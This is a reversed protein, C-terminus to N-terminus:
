EGGDRHLLMADAVQYARGAIDHPGYSIGATGSFAAMGAAVHAAFYDRLTMGGYPGDASVSQPFAMLDDSGGDARGSLTDSGYQRISELARELVAIRAEAANAKTLFERRLQAEVGAAQKWEDREREVEALRAKLPEYANVAEVILRAHHVKVTCVMLNHYYVWAYIKEGNPGYQIVYSWPRATAGTVENNSM